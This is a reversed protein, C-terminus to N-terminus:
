QQGVPQLLLPVGGRGDRPASRVAHWALAAVALLALLGPLVARLGRRRRWLMRGGGTKHDDDDYDDDDDDDNNNNHYDM